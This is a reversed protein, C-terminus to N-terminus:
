HERTKGNVSLPLAAGDAGAKQEVREATRHLHRVDNAHARESNVGLVVLRDRKILMEAECGRGDIRPMQEHNDLVNLQRSTFRGLDWVAPRSALPRAHSCFPRCRSSRRPETASALKTLTAARALSASRTLRGSTATLSEYQAQVLDDRQKLLALWAARETDYAAEAAALGRLEERLRGIERVHQVLQAEIQQLQAMKDAHASSRAVAANYEAKFAM